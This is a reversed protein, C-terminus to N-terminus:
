DFMKSISLGKQARYIAEAFPITMDIIEIDNSERFYTNSTMIADFKEKLIKTGKTFIGHTAYCFVKKAGNDRLIDAAKCLTDGTDIIDDVILVDKNKVDGVLHMIGIEGPRSRIKSLLAFSFDKKYLTNLNIKELRQLFSKVREVGGADPSVVVLENINQIHTKNLYKVVEPFSYLNDLPMNAPYFGQIQSAHLDMTIIRKLGPSISNAIARASIPVRSKDKRDKRSYLMNPLVFTVSEASASLLLDKILLLEVWWEQPNKSSDHIFYVHKKRVNEPVYMDIEKNNFFEISIEHLPMIEEKTSEIYRQIKRAFDWSSTKPDAMLVVDIM